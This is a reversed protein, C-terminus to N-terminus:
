LGTSPSARILATLVTNSSRYHSKLTGSLSEQEKPNSDLQWTVSCYVQCLGRKKEEKM